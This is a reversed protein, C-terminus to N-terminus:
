MNNFLPCVTLNQVKEIIEEEDAQRFTADYDPRQLELLVSFENAVVTATRVNDGLMALEGFDEGELIDKLHQSEGSSNIHSVALRGYLVIYM